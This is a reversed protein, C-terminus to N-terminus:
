QLYFMLMIESKLYEYITADKFTNNFSNLAAQYMNVVAYGEPAEM